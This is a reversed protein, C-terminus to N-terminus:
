TARWDRLIKQFELQPRAAQDVDALDVHADVNQAHLVIRGDDKSRDSPLPREVVLALNGARARCLGSVVQLNEGVDVMEADLFDGGRTTSRDPILEVCRVFPIDGLGEDGACLLGATWHNRHRNIAATAAILLRQKPQPAGIGTVAISAM